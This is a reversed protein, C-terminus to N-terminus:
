VTEPDPLLAVAQAGPRGDSRAGVRLRGGIAEARERSSAVGIHGQALADELRGPLVGTGDDTVDLLVGAPTHRVEVTVKTAGAHKAVNRLLERALSLVLEDRRGTAAADIRVEC